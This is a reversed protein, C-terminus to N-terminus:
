ANTSKAAIDGIIAKGEVQSYPALCGTVNTEAMDVPLIPAKAFRDRDVRPVSPVNFPVMLGVLTCPVHVSRPVLLPLTNSEEM